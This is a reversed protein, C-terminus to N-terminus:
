AYSIVIELVDDIDFKAVLRTFPYNSKSEDSGVVDFPIEYYEIDRDGYMVIHDLIIAYGHSVAHNIVREIEAKIEPIRRLIFVGKDLFSSDPRVVGFNPFEIEIEDSSLMWGEAKGAYRLKYSNYNSDQMNGIVGVDFGLGDNPLYFWESNCSYCKPVSDAAKVGCSKCIKM